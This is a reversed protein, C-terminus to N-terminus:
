NSPLRPQPRSTRYARGVADVEEAAWERLVSDVLQVEPMGGEPLIRSVAQQISDKRIESSRQSLGKEVFITRYQEPHQTVIERVKLEGAETLIHSNPKFYMGSLTSAAYWGNQAQTVFMSCTSMRDQNVFPQPWANNRHWDLRMRNMFEHWGAQSESVGFFSVLCTLLIIRRLM